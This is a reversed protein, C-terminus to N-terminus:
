SSRQTSLSTTSYILLALWILGFTVAHTRTFPEHYLLVGLMLQLSPAMYQFFGLTSLRLRKAANNFWLLPLSTMVGSGILLLSTSWAVGLHGAGTAAWYGVLILAVPAILLTEVALGVMPGVAVVKRLLGYFAFSFALGLALWPVQGFHWIFQAVGIGALLVALTQAHNLREKLFVCGLLVNVLPNIFYGLSTEVVRASNVGFIYLGWNFTLLLATALLIKLHTPSDLLQSFESGRRQLFLLGALFAMSWIVRHSLVEVASIQGFFKWYIPLLGWATYALVAYLAGSKVM